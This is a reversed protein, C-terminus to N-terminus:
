QAIPLYHMDISRQVDKRFQEWAEPSHVYYAPCVKGNVDYHRIVDEAQLDNRLALWAVLHVLSDYTADNFKGNAKPHTVEISITDKNRHNSAHAWEATPILQIIEGELGVIFHASTNRGQGTKQSAFYDRNNQATSGPNATNHIVIGNIEELARQTRNFPNPPILQIDLAPEEMPISKDAPNLYQYAKVGVFGAFAIVCLSVLAFALQAWRRRKNRRQNRETIFRNM